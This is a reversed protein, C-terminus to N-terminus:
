TMSFTLRPAGGLERRRKSIHIEAELGVEPLALSDHVHGVWGLCHISVEHTVKDADPSDLAGM